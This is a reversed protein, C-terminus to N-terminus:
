SVQGGIAEVAEKVGKSVKIGKIIYPRDVVANLFIKLEKINNNIINGAMLSDFSVELDVLKALDSVGLKAKTLSKRAVFGFKPLRRQLATQGGEFGIRCRKAAGNRASQGKHGKGCTKGLGSGIGRGKRKPESKNYSQLNNLAIIQTM